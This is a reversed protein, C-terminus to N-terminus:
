PTGEGNASVYRSTELRIINEQDFLRDISVQIRYLTGAARPEPRVAARVTYAAEGAAPRMDGGYGAMCALGGEPGPEERTWGALTQEADWPAAKLREALDQAEVLGLTSARSAGSM